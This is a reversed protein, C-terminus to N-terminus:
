VLVDPLMVSTFPLWICHKYSKELIYTNDSTESVDGTSSSRAYHMTRHSSLSNIIFCMAVVTNGLYLFFHRIDYAYPTYPFPCSTSARNFNQKEKMPIFKKGYM